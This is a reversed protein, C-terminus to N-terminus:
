NELRLRCTARIQGRSRTIPRSWPHEDLGSLTIPIAPGEYMLRRPTRISRTGGPPKSSMDPIGRASAAHVASSGTVLKHVIVEVTQYRMLRMGCAAEYGGHAPEGEPAPAAQSRLPVDSMITAAPSPRVLEALPSGLGDPDLQGAPPVSLSPGPSRCLWPWISIIERRACQARRPSPVSPSTHGLDDM